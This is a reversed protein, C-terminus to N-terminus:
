WQETVLNKKKKQNHNHTNLMCLKIHKAKRWVLSLDGNEQIM